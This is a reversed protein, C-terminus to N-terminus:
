IELPLSHVFKSYYDVSRQFSPYRHAYGGPGQGWLPDEGVMKLAATYFHFRAQLSNERRHLGSTTDGPHLPQLAAFSSMVLILSLM